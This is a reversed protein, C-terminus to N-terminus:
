RYLVRVSSPEVRGLDEKRSFKAVGLCARLCETFITTSFKGQNQLEALFLDVEVTNMSLITRLLEKREKYFKRGWDGYVWYSINEANNEAGLEANHISAARVSANPTAKLYTGAGSTSPAPNAAHNVSGAEEHQPAM